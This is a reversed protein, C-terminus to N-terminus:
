DNRVGSARAAGITATSDQAFRIPIRTWMAIRRDGRRGPSFRLRRAGSVAASDFEAYGSTQSILASDVGGAEDVHILVETEGQVQRDWLGVPYEIPAADPMLVPEQVAEEGGCAAAILLLAACGRAGVRIRAAGPMRGVIHM